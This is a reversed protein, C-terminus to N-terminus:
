IREVGEINVINIKGGKNRYKRLRIQLVMGNIINTKGCHVM